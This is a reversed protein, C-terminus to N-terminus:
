SRAAILREMTQYLTDPEVPKSLHANLGAQLSNQVDEDFANATLAIIPISGADERDLARIAKTAELGDMEPMRMDMLIADYYGPASEGFMELAILGNEAHDVEMERNKLVMMMIEANVAMDEALLIHRGALDTVQDVQPRNEEPEDEAVRDSTKLTVNVTFITGVGKESEVSIDGNMMDVINKTIPMGLGTSGYKTTTSSDEQSFTEFIKPIFEKSMGVGTDEMRFSITAKDKYRAKERVTLTVRGGEPTFKVSNGLINIMVQRLKMEDGIYYDSLEGEISCTYSLGKDRCQGNIITCVQDIMKSFSFEEQKIDMRGSEIRSMDLIDNILGLLHNASSGIKELHERTAAPLEPDALAINDLGIIANMPTRIEHSMSSLFATKAQSAKEATELADKLAESQLLAKRTQEDVDAFGVGVAHVIHDHRDEKHRVAAMKLMEYSEQGDRYVLYLYSIVPAKDLETRINETRIFNLFGKKYEDTVYKECYDEFVSRYDFHEGVTLGNDIKSHAQYCVGENKDLDIYYVSRYDSSLATIMRNARMHRRSVYDQLEDKMSTVKEALEAVDYSGKDDTRVDEDDEPEDTAIEKIIEDVNDALNSLDDNLGKFRSTLRGVVILVVILGVLLSIMSILFITGTIDSVQEDYWEASFDVAVITAIKGNSDFVPSYASYFRGWSDDYPQSDVASKGKSARYLADTYAVPAGFEGPDEVAADVSFTFEKEGKINVCYIYELSINKQFYTLTDLAKRYEPSDKDDATLKAMADGDLMDAATDAIDLMRQQILTIMSSRSKDLLLYGLIANSALIIIIIIILVQRTMRVIKKM